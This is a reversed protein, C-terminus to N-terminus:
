PESRLISSALRVMAPLTPLSPSPTINRKKGLSINNGIIWSVGIPSSGRLSNTGPFRAM